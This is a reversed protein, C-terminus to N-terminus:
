VKEMKAEGILPPSIANPNVGNVVLEEQVATVKAEQIDKDGQSWCIISTARKFHSALDDFRDSLISEGFKSVAAIVAPSIQRFFAEDKFPLLVRRDNTWARVAQLFSKDYKYFYEEFKPLPQPTTLRYEIM